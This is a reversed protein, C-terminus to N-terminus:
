GLGLMRVKLVKRVRNWLCGSPDSIVKSLQKMSLPLGFYKTECSCLKSRSHGHMKAIRSSLLVHSSQVNYVLEGRHKKCM